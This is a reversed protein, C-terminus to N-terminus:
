KGAPEKVPQKQRREAEALWFTAAESRMVIRVKGEVPLWSLAGDAERLRFTGLSDLWQLARMRMGRPIFEYAEGLDFSERQHAATVAPSWTVEVPLRTAITKMVQRVPVHEWEAAELWLGDLRQLLDPVLYWGLAEFKEAALLIPFARPEQVRALGAALALPLGTPEDDGLHALLVDRHGAPDEAALEMLLEAQMTLRRDVPMDKLKALSDLQRRVAEACRPDRLFLRAVRMYFSRDSSEADVPPLTRALVPAAELVGSAGFVMALGSQGEPDDAFLKLLRPMTEPDSFRALTFAAVDRTAPEDLLPRIKAAASRAGIDGLVGAIANALEPAPHQDLMAALSGEAERAFAWGLSVVAGVKAREDTGALVALNDQIKRQRQMEYPLRSAEIEAIRAAVAPLKKATEPAVVALARVAASALRDEHAAIEELLPAAAKAEPGIAGLAEVAHERSGQNRQDASRLFEVLAPTAAAAEAGLRKLANCTAGRVYGVDVAL